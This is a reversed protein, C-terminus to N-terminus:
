FSKWFLEFVFEFRQITGDLALNNTLPEQLAEQLREIASGLNHLSQNNKIESM